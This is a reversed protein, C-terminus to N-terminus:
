TLLREITADWSLNMARVRELGAFGLQAAIRENALRDIARAIGLASAEAVLGTVQHDVLEHVGGSDTTTVVPKGSLLAESTVYGYSDEDIPIYAVARADALLDVKEQDSIYRPLLEVRSGVGFRDITDVLRTLDDDTDPRGAIVLRINKRVHAMAEVLLEQRKGRNIRGVALVYDGYTGTRFAQPNGHPPLLVTSTRGNFRLLRRGTVASNCYISRADSFALNDAQRVARTLRMYHHDSTFDQWPTGKLDYVQRFQHLLWIVKNSHPVLYAPFKLAIVRDAGAIRMSAAAFMSQAVDEPNAWRLPVKVLEVDNGRSALERVLTEALHEAGGRLFPVSTNLVAVKM